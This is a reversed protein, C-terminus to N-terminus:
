RTLRVRVRQTSGDEFRVVLVAKVSAKGDLRARARKNLKVVVKDKDGPDLDFSGAGLRKGGRTRLVARGECGVPGCRVTFRAKRRNATADVKGGPVKVSPADGPPTTPPTPVPAPTVVKIRASGQGPDHAVDGAYRAVLEVTRGAAFPGVEFTAKGGKLTAAPLDTGDVSLVVQGSPTEQAASTV